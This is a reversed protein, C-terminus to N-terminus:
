QTWIIIQLIQLALKSQLNLHLNPLFISSCEPQLLLLLLRNNFHRITTSQDHRVSIQTSRRQHKVAIAAAVMEAEGSITVPIRHPCTEHHFAHFILTPYTPVTTLDGSLHCPQQLDYTPPPGSSSNAQGNGNSYGCGCPAPPSANRSLRVRAGYEIRIM